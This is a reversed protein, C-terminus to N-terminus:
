HRNRNNFSFFSVLMLLSLFTEARNLTRHLYSLNIDFKFRKSCDNLLYERIVTSRTDFFTVRVEFICDAYQQLVKGRSLITYAWNIWELRSVMKAREQKTRQTEAFPKPPKEELGEPNVKAVKRTLKKFQLLYM